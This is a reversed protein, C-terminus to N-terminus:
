RILNGRPCTITLETINTTTINFILALINRTVNTSIPFRYLGITTSTGNLGMYKKYFDITDVFFASQLAEDLDTGNLGAFRSPQIRLILEAYDWGHRDWEHKWLFYPTSNFKSSPPWYNNMDDLLTANNVILSINFASYNRTHKATAWLGHITFSQSYSQFLVPGLPSDQQPRLTWHSQM